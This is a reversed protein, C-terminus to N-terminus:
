REEKSYDVDPYIIKHLQLNLMGDFIRYDKMWEILQSPSMKGFVPSFAFNVCSGFKKLAGYVEYAKLFDTMDSIVFKVFDRSGLPLLNEINAKMVGSSPLKYDVM